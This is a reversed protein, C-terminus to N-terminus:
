LIGGASLLHIKFIIIFYMRVFTFSFFILVPTIIRDMSRDDVRSNTEKEM